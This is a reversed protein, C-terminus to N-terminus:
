RRELEQEFLEQARARVSEDPDVLAYTVPNLSVGPEQVWAELAQIRVNPDPEQPKASQAPPLEERRIQEPPPRTATRDEEADGARLADPRSTLCATAEGRSAGPLSGEGEYTDEGCGAFSLMASLFVALGLRRVLRRPM